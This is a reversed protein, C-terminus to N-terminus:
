RLVNSLLTLLGAWGGAAHPREAGARRGRCDPLLRNGGEPDVFLSENMWKLRRYACRRNKKERRRERKWM